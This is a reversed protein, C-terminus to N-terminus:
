SVYSVAEPLSMTRGAAWAAAFTAPDLQATIGSRTREYSPRAAPPLPAGITERLATAAGLLRAAREPQGEGLAVAALGELSAAVGERRGLETFALLSEEYFLAAHRYEGRGEALLALYSLCTAVNDKNGIEASLDLSEELLAVARANDGQRQAVLGLNLLASAIGQDDKIQRALALSEALFPAARELDGQRLAVLGLLNLSTAIGWPHNVSRALALTDEYWRIAEAFNGQALAINGLGAMAVATDWHSSVARALTLSEQAQATAREYDGLHYALWASGNLAKARVEIKSKLNEIKAPEKEVPLSELIGMGFDLNALAADLWRRGESFHSHTYWFRWLAGALRALDLAKGADRAWALAARFNDHDQELRDLWANQEPGTLELEASHALNLYYAFHRRRVAADEGGAALRELAYERITDLLGFRSETGAAEQRLLSKDLLSAVGDLVEFTPNPIQSKPDDSRDADEAGFDTCVAEIAELTCGGVFVGLRRFLQQEDPALLEYSWDIAGRLTQQRAPLDRPGGALLPLRSELRALMAPPTLLKTRAAALEIALPLGDLRVCIAAVAAANADTFAFDTQAARAREVFLAVASYHLLVPTPEPHTALRALDPLELPPVAYQQEGRVRLAARSTVLIKLRPAATLWEVLLAAAPLVHEFNDLVLLLQKDRLYGALRAALPEGAMDPLGLRAAVAAPVHDPAEVATLPVVCVGDAFSQELDAAVQLGLRTKGVGPPGTLTLLRGGARRLAAGARAVAQERGILRTLPAALGRAPPLTRVPMPPPSLSPPLAAVEPVGTRAFHVFAPRDAPPIALAEALLEAVQKSPRRTDAEIRQITAEAIGVREALDFQTLDLAKRREKLWPGFATGATIKLSRPRDV